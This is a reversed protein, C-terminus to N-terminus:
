SRNKWYGPRRKLHAVAVIVIEAPRIRYVVQYPFRAMLVRRTLGDESLSAGATPNTAILSLAASVADLLEAGLGARRHEYWRVAERLEVGAPKGTRVPLTM